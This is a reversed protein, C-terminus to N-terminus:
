LAGSYAIKKRGLEFLGGDHCRDQKGEGVARGESRELLHPENNRIGRLHFGSGCGCSFIGLGFGLFCTLRRFSDLNGAYFGGFTGLLPGSGLHGLNLLNATQKPACDHGQQNHSDNSSTGGTYPSKNPPALQREEKHKLTHIAEVARHIFM